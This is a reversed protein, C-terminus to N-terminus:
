LRGHADLALPRSVEGIGVGAEGIMYDALHAVFEIAGRLKERELWSSGLWRGALGVNGLGGVQHAQLTLLQEPETVVGFVLNRGRVLCGLGDKVLALFDALQRM